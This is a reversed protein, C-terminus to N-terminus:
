GHQLEKQLLEKARKLRVSANNASIGLTEAVERAEFGELALSAVQSLKLPLRRVAQMLKDRDIKAGVQMDPAPMSEAVEADLEHTNPRRIEKAVHSAGRYHAIRAVFTKLSSRQEFKPIARWLAFAMEQLLDNRLDPDLEYSMAIRSLMPGYQELIEAFRKESYRKVTVRDDM